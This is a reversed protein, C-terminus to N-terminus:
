VVFCNQEFCGLRCTQTCMKMALLTLSVKIERESKIAFCPVWLSRRMYLRRVLIAAKLVMFHRATRLTVKEPQMCTREGMLTVLSYINNQFLKSVLIIWFKRKEHLYARFTTIFHLRVRILVAIISGRICGDLISKDCWIWIPPKPTEHMPVMTWIFGMFRHNGFKKIKTSEHCHEIVFSKM